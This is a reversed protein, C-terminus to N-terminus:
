ILIWPLTSTSAVLDIVYGSRAKLKASLVSAVDNYGLCSLYYCQFQTKEAEFLNLVSTKGSSAPSSLLVFRREEEQFARCVDDLINKRDLHPLRVDIGDFEASANEMAIAQEQTISM